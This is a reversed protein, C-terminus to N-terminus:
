SPPNDLENVYLFRLYEKIGKDNPICHVLITDVQIKSIYYYKSKERSKHQILIYM